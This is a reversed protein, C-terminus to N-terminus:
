LQKKFVSPVTGTKSKFLSIFYDTNHYGVQWAVESINLRTLKLLRKAEELRKDNLYERFSRGTQRKFLQGLYTTNMHFMRALDQLQLKTRYERDVYQILQIITNSENASRLRNLEAAASTCLAHVYARLGAASDMTQGSKVQARLTQMFDDPQGHLKAIRRCVNLELHAIHARLEDLQLRGAAMLALLPSIAADLQEPLQEPLQELLELLQRSAELAAAHRREGALPQVDAAVVIGEEGQCRKWEMLSLAQKYLTCVTSLGSSSGSVAVILQEKPAASGDVLQKAICAELGYPAMSEIPIIAGARGERDVFTRDPQEPWLRRLAQRVAEPEASGHVLVCSLPAENVLQLAAAAQRELEVSVEGQIVRHLLHQNYWSRVRSQHLEAAREEHIKRSIRALSAEIEEEDIPKLVYETVRQKLATKVYEFSDYGSLIIFQPPSDFRQNSQRILELGSISPMHIDTLVLEPRLSDILSLAATGNSAEGCIQFGYGSWDIMTRLGELVWPEDDVLLVKMM